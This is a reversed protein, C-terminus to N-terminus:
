VFQVSDGMRSYYEIGADCVCLFSALTITITSNKATELFTVYIVYKDYFTLM